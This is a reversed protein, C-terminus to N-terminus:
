RKRPITVTQVLNDNVRIFLYLKGSHELVWGDEISKIPLELLEDNTLTETTNTM